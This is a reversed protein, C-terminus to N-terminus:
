LVDITNGEALEVVAKKWNKARGISRGRRRWKGRQVLTNVSRVKVDFLTEISQRIEIKNTDMPVRFTYANHLDTAFTSKETIVPKLIVSHPDKM